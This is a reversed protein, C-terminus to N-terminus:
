PKNTLHFDASDTGEPPVTLRLSGDTFRRPWNDGAVARNARPDDEWVQVDSEVSVKSPSNAAPKAPKSIMVRHEGIIAGKRAPKVLELEFRGQDDTLGFSGAGPNRTDRAIPQTTIGAGALPRGEFTIRGSVSAVPLSEGCGACVLLSLVALQHSMM